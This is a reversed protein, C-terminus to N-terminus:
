PAGEVPPPPTPAATPTTPTTYATFDIRLRWGRPLLASLTEEIRASWSSLTGDVLEQRNDRANSYTLSNTGADLHWAALEFMHAVQENSLRSLEVIEAEVPSMLVQQYKAGNGLVAISRATQTRKWETRVDDAQSLNIPQETTLVGSPVASDLSEAAYGTLRNALALQQRHLGLVGHRLSHRLPVLRVTTGELTVTGSQPDILQPTGDVAYYWDGYEDRSLHLPNLLQFSGALPNRQEADPTYGVLGMGLLLAARVWRVWLEYEPMRDMIHFHSPGTLGTPDRVWTPYGPDGPNLTSGDPRDIIWPMRILPNVIIATARTVSPPTASEWSDHLGIWWLDGPPDTMFGDPTNVNIPYNPHNRVPQIQTGFTAM